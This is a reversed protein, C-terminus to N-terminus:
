VGARKLRNLEMQISLTELRRTRLERLGRPLGFIARLFSFVGWISAASASALLILLAAFSGFFLLPYLFVFM